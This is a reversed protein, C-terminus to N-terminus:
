WGPVAIIRMPAAGATASASGVTVGGVSASSSWCVSSQVSAAIRAAPAAGSAAEPEKTMVKSATGLTQASFSGPVPM